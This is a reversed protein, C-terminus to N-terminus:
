NQLLLLVRANDHMFMKQTLLAMQNLTSESKLKTIEAAIDTDDNASIAGTLSEEIVEYNSEQASLGQQMSGIDTSESLAYNLANDVTDIASVVGSPSSLDFTINGDSDTLGFAQSSMNGLKLTDYGNIGAVTISNNGDLLKKGNYEINANENITSISQTISQTIAAKDSDSNTGNSAQLLKSKIDNLANVTSSVGGAAVNLMANANQTNKNSQAIAFINSNMKQTISYSAVGFKSSPDQSGTAIKQISNNMTNSTKNINNLGVNSIM